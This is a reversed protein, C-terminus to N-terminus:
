KWFYLKAYSRAPSRSPVVMCECINPCEELLLLFGYWLLGLNLCPVTAVLPVLMTWWCYRKCWLMLLGRWCQTYQVCSPQSPRMTSACLSRHSLCILLHSRKIADLPFSFHVNLVHKHIFTTLINSYYVSCVSFLNFFINEINENWSNPSLVFVSSLHYKFHICILHM